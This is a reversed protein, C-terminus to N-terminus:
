RQPLDFDITNEGSTVEKTLPSSERHAYKEPVIWRLKGLGGQAAMRRPTRNRLEDEFTAAKPAAGVSESAEITVRYKGITAGDDTQFTTLRYTGDPQIVGLAPRRGDDPYFTIRGVAIPKGAVTVKGHVPATTPLKQGCGCALLCCAGAIWWRRTTQKTNSMRM